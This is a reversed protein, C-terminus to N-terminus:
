RSRVIRRTMDWVPVRWGILEDNRNLVPAKSRVIQCRRRILGCDSLGDPRAVSGTSYLRSDDSQDSKIVRQQLCMAEKTSSVTGVGPKMPCSLWAYFLYPSIHAFPSQKTSQKIVLHSLSLSWPAVHVKGTIEFFDNISM